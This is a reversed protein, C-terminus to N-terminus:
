DDQEKTKNKIEDLVARLRDFWDAHLEPDDGTGWEEDFEKAAMAMYKVAAKLDTRSVVVESPKVRRLRGSPGRSVRAAVLKPVEGEFRPQGDWPTM